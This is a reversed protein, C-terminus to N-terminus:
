VLTLDIRRLSIDVKKVRIKVLDGIKYIKNRRQGRWKHDQEIYIYYDDTLSSVHVLGEVFVEALEVFFGFQTVNVIIGAFSKGIRDSMYQARRLDIIEREVKMAKEEKLTSHEAVEAMEKTLNKKEYASFKHNLSEKLIRHTVLDPYRRIPSTFHTYHKFGLCFHGPDKQSYHAKKMTRLLLTNVVREEPQGRVKKLIKQLDTSRVNSPLNLRLGFGAAFEQFAIIKKEDPSEHIRHIFPLKQSFLHRAVTQNAALMFEEILEHAENFQAKTIKEVTGKSNMHIEPEPVHFDVSGSEFRQKRLIKSLRHMNKLIDIIGEHKKEMAGKKLLHAVENYTFRISSKIVSTFFESQIVKGEHDFDILTTLTLRKTNPKLSCLDNSLESPLMPIVGGPFYISTGRSFAEKDLASNKKIYHSVDAIHVGLRFGEKTLDLSIADDFDKATEGDITFIEWDTLDKRNKLDKDCFPRTVKKAQELVNIPFENRTELKRFISNLEVKPDSSYGLIETIKGIPPQHKQPYSIIDIVVIQGSKARLKHKSSVFIDYFYKNEIPIVWGNEDLPEFLGVLSTTVRELIRIVRGEPRGSGNHSEVRVVVKDQHMAGSTRKPDIYIDGAQRNTEPTLFGYGNPHGYFVGTVLNMEDPLGYRGGRLRVLTGEEAMLKIQNRFDRRQTESIGLARALESIKM